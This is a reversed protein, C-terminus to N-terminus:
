FNWKFEAGLCQWALHARGAGPRWGLVAQPQPMQAIRDLLGLTRSRNFEYQEQFHDFVNM